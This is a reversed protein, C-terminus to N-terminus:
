GVLMSTGAPMQSESNAAERIRLVMTTGSDPSLNADAGFRRAWIIGGNDCLVPWGGREWVPIRALHFLKKIKEEGTHGIPHYRDGPRWNRLELPGSVRSWDVWCMVKNYVGLSLDPISSKDILELCIRIQSCPVEVVGPVPAPLTYPTTSKRAAVAARSFQLWDFSREIDLGPVAVRGHGRAAAMALVEDVHAFGIGRLDGKVCEMARRVLRRGVALPLAKLAAAQLLLVREPTWQFAASLRDIEARWWEEEAMAWDATHALVGALAPNWEKSLQPLLDHRIRNRAFELSRNSSDERWAIGRARLFDEVDRREVDLLPRVIGDATVPRIGALGATGAGRLFRFLVTEAQDSRTHGLAVRSVAGSAISRRFFDLRANRGEQELNGTADLRAEEFLAPLGLEAALARVFEADARSEAGRLGHDLHLVSLAIGFGPALERLAFLLCVSDAGGSVAVGVTQGPSFMGYRVVTRAVRQLLDEV